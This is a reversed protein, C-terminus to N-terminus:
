VIESNKLRNTCFWSKDLQTEQTIQPGWPSLLKGAIFHFSVFVWKNVDTIALIEQSDVTLETKHEAGKLSWLVLKEWFGMRCIFFSFSSLYLFGRPGDSVLIPFLFRYMPKGAELGTCKGGSTLCGPRHDGSQCSVCEMLFNGLVGGSM